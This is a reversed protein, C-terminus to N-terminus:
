FKAHLSIYTPPTGLQALGDFRRSVDFGFKERELGLGLSPGGAEGSQLKYGGRLFLQQRYGLVFGVAATQGVLAPSSLVDVSVDLTAGGEKLSQIPLRMKVGGQIVRPLPDAQDKDKAQLAPGLNRFALGVTFPVATAVRYQAGLDLAQTSGTVGASNGCLGSCQNFRLLVLKYSLGASFRSGVPTAYSLALMHNKNSITGTSVDGGSAPTAPQDGYDVLHYAAALTGLVRSPAAFAIMTNTAFVTKSYHVALERKALRALSAANWWIGETGLSTDAVVADGQGVARGGFPALLFLGGNSQAVVPQAALLLAALAFAIRTRVASVYPNERLSTYSFYLAIIPRRAM